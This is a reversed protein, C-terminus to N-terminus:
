PQSKKRRHRVITLVLTLAGACLIPIFPMRLYLILLSAALFFCCFWVLVGQGLSRPPTSGSGLVM